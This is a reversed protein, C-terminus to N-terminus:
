RDIRRGIRQLIQRDESISVGSTTLMDGTIAASAGAKFFSEGKDAFLGRGGALRIAADPLIFRFLAVTTRVEESTLIPNGALPTGPIPNLINIPVSKVELRRLELAMDIRDEMTEGLGIIGGSCIELGAKRARDITLLKDDFSHSSCVQPFFRRSTELNHHYRTLGAGKLFRFEDASLLGLSACLSIRGDRRLTEFAKGLQAIESAAPKRGSTVVSFRGIGLDAGRRGAEVIKEADLLPYDNIATRFVSSQACYRCDESCRGSKANLICCLDVRDGCFRARIRDAGQTLEALFDDKRNPPVSRDESSSSSSLSFAALALAEEKSISGGDFIKETLRKIM